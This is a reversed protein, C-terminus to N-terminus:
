CKATDKMAAYNVPCFINSDKQVYKGAGHVVVFAHHKSGKYLCSKDGTLSSTASCEGGKENSEPILFSESISQSLTESFWELNEADIREKEAKDTLSSGGIKVVIVDLDEGDLTLLSDSSAGVLVNHTSILGFFFLCMWLRMCPNTIRQRQREDIM